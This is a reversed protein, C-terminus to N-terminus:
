KHEGEHRLARFTQPAVGTRAKFARTFQGATEFGARYAVEGIPLDTGQLLGRAIEIRQAQLWERPSLKTWRRWERRFAADSYGAERALGAITISPEARAREQARWLWDPGDGRAALELPRTGRERWLWAFLARGLADRELQALADPAPSPRGDGDARSATLATLLATGHAAEVPQWPQCSALELLLDRDTSLANLGASIWAADATAEITRALLPPMLLWQGATVRVEHWTGDALRLRAHLKGEQVQWLACAPIPAHRLEAGRALHNRVAWFLHISLALM